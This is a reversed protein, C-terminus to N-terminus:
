SSGQRGVRVMMTLSSSLFSGLLRIAFYVWFTVSNQSPDDPHDCSPFGEVKCELPCTSPRNPCTLDIWRGVKGNNSRSTNNVQKQVKNTKAKEEEQKEKTKIQQHTLSNVKGKREKNEQDQKMEEKDELKGDDGNAVNKIYTFTHGCIPTTTTFPLPPSKPPPPPIQLSNTIAQVPNSTNTTNTNTTPDQFWSLLSGHLTM